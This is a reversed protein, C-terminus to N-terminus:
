RKGCRSNSGSSGSFISRATVVGMRVGRVLGSKGGWEWGKWAIALGAAAATATATRCAWEQPPLLLIGWQVTLVEMAM